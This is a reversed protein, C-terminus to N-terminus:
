SLEDKLVPLLDGRFKYFGTNTLKSKMDMWIKGGAQRWKTCFAYDESLYRGNDDVMTDFFLYFNNKTVESDYSSTDNNYKDQPREKVLQDFVSRQIM